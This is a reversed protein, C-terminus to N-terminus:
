NSRWYHKLWQNSQIDSVSKYAHRTDGTLNAKLAKINVVEKGDAYRDLLRGLQYLDSAISSTTAQPDKVKIDPLPTGFKSAYESDILFWEDKICVVNPWRIDNHAWGLKHIGKLAKCICTFAKGLEQEDKPL